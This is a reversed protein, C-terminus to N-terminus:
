EGVGGTAAGQGAAALEEATAIEVKSDVPNVFKAFELDYADQTPEHEMSGSFISMKYGFWFFKKGTQKDVGSLPENKITGVRGILAKIDNSSNRFTPSGCHFTAFVGIQPIWILFEPGWSCSSNKGKAREQIDLFEPKSFTEGIKHFWALPKSGSMDMAKHRYGLPMFQLEKGFRHEIGKATVYAFEGNDVHGNVIHESQGQFLQLRGLFNFGKALNDFEKDEAIANQPIILNSM